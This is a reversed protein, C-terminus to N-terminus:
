PGRPTGCEKVTSLSSARSRKNKEGPPASAKKRSPPLGAGENDIGGSTSSNMSRSASMAIASFCPCCNTPGGSGGLFQAESSTPLAPADGLRPRRRVVTVRVGQQHASLSEFGRGEVQLPPVFTSTLSNPRQISTGM